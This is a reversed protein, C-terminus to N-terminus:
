RGATIRPMGGPHRGDGQEPGGPHGLIGHLHVGAVDSSRRDDQTQAAQEESPRARGPGLGLPRRDTPRHAPVEPSPPLGAERQRAIMGVTPRRQAGHGDDELQVAGHQLLDDVVDVARRDLHAAAPRHGPGPVHGPAPEEPHAREPDLDARPAVSEAQREGGPDELSRGGPSPEPEQGLVVLALGGGPRHGGGHLLVAVSERHAPHDQGDQGGEQGPPEEASAHGGV